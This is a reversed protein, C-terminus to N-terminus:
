TSPERNNKLVLWGERIEQETEFRAGRQRGHDADQDFHRHHQRQDSEGIAGPTKKRCRSNERGPTVIGPEAPYLPKDRKGM